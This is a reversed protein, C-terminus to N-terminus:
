ERRFIRESRRLSPQVRRARAPVRRSARRLPAALSGRPCPGSEGDTGHSTATRGSRGAAGPNRALRKRRGQAVTKHHENKMAFLRRRPGYATLRGAVAAPPFGRQDITSPRGGCARAVSNAREAQGPGRLPCLPLEISFTAILSTATRNSDTALQPPLWPPLPDPPVEPEPPDEASTQIGPADAEHVQVVPAIPAWIQLALPDPYPTQVQLPGPVPPALAAAPVVPM